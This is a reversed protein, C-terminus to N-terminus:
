FLSLLLKFSIYGRDSESLAYHISPQCNCFSNSSRNISTKKIGLSKVRASLTTPPLDLLRAAGQPGYIRGECQRLNAEINRRELERIEWETLVEPQKKGVPNEPAQKEGSGTKLDIQLHDGSSVIVAREIVSQLERVNGPWYYEQLTLLNDRNLRLGSLHAASCRAWSPFIVMNRKGIPNISQILRIFDNSVIIDYKTDANEILQPSGTCFFWFM